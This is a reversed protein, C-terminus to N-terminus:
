EPGMVKSAIDVCKRCKEPPEGKIQEYCQAGCLAMGDSTFSSRWGKPLIHAKKGYDTKGLSSM